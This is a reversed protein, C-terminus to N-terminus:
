EYIIELNIAQAGYYNFGLESLIEDGQKLKDYGFTRRYRAIQGIEVFCIFGDHTRVTQIHGRFKKKKKGEFVNVRIIDFGEENPNLRRANKFLRNSEHEKGSCWYAAGLLLKAYHDTKLVEDAKEIVKLWNPDSIYGLKNLCKLYLRIARPNHPDIREAELALDLAKPYNGLSTELWGWRILVESDPREKAQTKYIDRAAKINGLEKLVGGKIGPLKNVDDPSLSNEGETIVELARALYERRKDKDKAKKARELFLVAHSSYGHETNSINRCKVFLEEARTAYLNEMAEINEELARRKYLIGMSHLVAPNNPELQLAREFIDLAENYYKFNMKLMGLHQILVADEPYKKVIANLLKFLLRYDEFYKRIESNTTLDRAVKIHEKISPNMVNIIEILHNLIEEKNGIVADTLVTAIASHRSRFSGKGTIPEYEEIIIEETSPGVIDEFFRKWSVDPAVINKLLFRDMSQRFRFFCSIFLYAKKGEEIPIKEYEDIIIKDFEGGDAVERMIVLI